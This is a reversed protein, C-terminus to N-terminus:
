HHNRPVLYRARADWVSARSNGPIAEQLAITMTTGVAHASMTFWAYQAFAVAFDEDLSRRSRERGSPDSSEDVPSSAM